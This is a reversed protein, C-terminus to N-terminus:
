RVIINNKKLQSKIERITAKNYHLISAICVADCNTKKILDIIDNVQGAGSSVVIPVTVKRTVHEILELDFGKMIGDKDKSNIILEGVGDDEFRKIIDQLSEYVLHKGNDIYAKWGEEHKMATISGVITSSGFVKVANKVFSYNKHFHSNIAIKDAGSRLIKRIDKISRIGGGVTIPIFVDKSIKKIIEFLSNRDYLSAVADLFVIEDAGDLYYKKAMIDPRGVKRLGEYYKGKIVFDNNIDLRSIIRVKKNKYVISM